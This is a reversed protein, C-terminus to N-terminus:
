EGMEMCAIRGGVMQKKNNLMRTRKRKGFKNKKEILSVTVSDGGGGAFYMCISMMREVPVITKKRIKSVAQKGEDDFVDIFEGGQEEDEETEKM